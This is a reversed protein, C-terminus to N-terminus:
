SKLNKIIFLLLPLMVIFQAVVFWGAIKLRKYKTDLGTALCYAQEILDDLMSEDNAKQFKEKFHSLEHRAIGGFYVLSPLENRHHNGKLFPMLAMVTFYISLANCLVLGIFLLWFLFGITVKDHMSLYGVCIGSFIFTNLGIYFSGKNNVADYYHDFREIIFKAHEYKIM